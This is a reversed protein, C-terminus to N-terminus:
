CKSSKTEQLALTADFPRFSDKSQIKSKERIPGPLELLLLEDFVFTRKEGKCM